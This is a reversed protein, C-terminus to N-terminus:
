IVVQQFFAKPPIALPRIEHVIGHQIAAANDMVLETNQWRRVDEVPKGTKGAIINASRLDEYQIAKLREAAFSETVRQGAMLESYTQHFFFTAGDSAYREDGCLFLLNAASQIVGINHTVIQLPLADIVGCLYYAQDTAGGVSTLCLTVTQYGNDIANLCMAALQESARRDIAANFGIYCGAPYRRILPVQETSM